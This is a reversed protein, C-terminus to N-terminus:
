LEVGFSNSQQNCCELQVVTFLWGTTVIRCFCYDPQGDGSFDFCEVDGIYTNAAEAPDPAVPKQFTDVVRSPHADCEPDTGCDYLEIANTVTDAQDTVSLQALAPM